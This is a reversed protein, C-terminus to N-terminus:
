NEIIKKIINESINDKNNLYKDNIDRLTKGTIESVRNKENEIMTNYQKQKAKIKESYLVELSHKEKQLKEEIMEDINEKTREAVEVRNRAENDIDILKNIIKEM